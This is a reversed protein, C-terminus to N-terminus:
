KQFLFYFIFIFLQPFIIYKREGAGAHYRFLWRLGVLRPAVGMMPVLSFSLPQWEAVDNNPAGSFAQCKQPSPAFLRITLPKINVDFRSIFRLKRRLPLRM